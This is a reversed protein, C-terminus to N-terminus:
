KVSSFRAVKERGEGLMGAWERSLQWYGVTSVRRLSISTRLWFTSEGFDGSVGGVGRMISPLTVPLESPFM